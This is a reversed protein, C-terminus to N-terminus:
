PACGRRDIVRDICEEPHSALPKLIQDAADPTSRLAAAPLCFLGGARDGAVERVELVEDHNSGGHGVPSLPGSRTFSLQLLKRRCLSARCSVTLQQRSV